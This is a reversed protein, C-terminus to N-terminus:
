DGMKTGIPFSAHHGSIVENVKSLDLQYVISMHIEIHM